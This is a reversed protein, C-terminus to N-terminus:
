VPPWLGSFILTEEKFTFTNQWKLRENTSLFPIIKAIIFVKHKYNNIITLDVHARRVDSDTMPLDQQPLHPNKCNLLIPIKSKKKGGCVFSTWFSLGSFSLFPGGPMESILSFIPFLSLSFLSLGLFM